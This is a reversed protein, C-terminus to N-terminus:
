GNQFEDFRTWEFWCRRKAPAGMLQIQEKQSGATNGEICTKNVKVRCLGTYTMWLAIVLNAALVFWVFESVPGSHYARRHFPAHQNIIGQAFPKAITKMAEEDVTGEPLDILILRLTELKQSLAEEHFVDPIKMGAIKTEMEHM